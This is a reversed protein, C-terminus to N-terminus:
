SPWITRIQDWVYDLPNLGAPWAVTDLLTFIWVVVAVELITSIVLVWVCGLAWRNGQGAPRVLASRAFRDHIGQKTPSRIMSILLVVWWLGFVAYSAIAVAFVPLVILIGIWWGMALWREVAQTVTLPRGDFANAVQIGFVRQGPTGRRGGTWFWLFYVASAAFSFLTLAMFSERSIPEPYPSGTYTYDYFGFFAPPISVIASLLLSDLFYAAIRSPTDSFVLGPPLLDNPATSQSALPESTEVSASL